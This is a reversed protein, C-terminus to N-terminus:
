RKQLGEKFKGRKVARAILLAVGTSVLALGTSLIAIGAPKTGHVRTCEGSQDISTTACEGDLLLFPLAASTVSIGAGAMTIGLVLMPRDLHRLRDTKLQAPESDLWATLNPDSTGIDPRNPKNVAEEAMAPM